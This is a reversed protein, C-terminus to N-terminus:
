PLNGTIIWVVIYSVNGVIYLAFLVTAMKKHKEKDYYGTGDKPGLKGTYVLIVDVFAWVGLGGFTILKIIGTGVRGLYFRDVGLVGLFMSFLFATIYSKDGGHQAVPQQPNQVQAIPQQPKM